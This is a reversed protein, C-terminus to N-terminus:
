RPLRRHRCMLRQRPVVSYREETVEGPALLRRQVAAVLHAASSDGGADANKFERLCVMVHQQLHEGLRGRLVYGGHCGRIVGIKSDANEANM